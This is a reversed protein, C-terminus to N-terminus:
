YNDMFIDEITNGRKIGIPDIKNKALFRSVMSLHKGRHKFILIVKFGDCLVKQVGPIRELKKLLGDEISMLEISVQNKILKLRNVSDEVLIRGRGM